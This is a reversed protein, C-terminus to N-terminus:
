KGKLDFQVDRTPGRVELKLESKLNYRAPILEGIHGGGDPGEVKGSAKPMVPSNIRVDYATRYLLTEFKGDKIPAAQTPTDGKSPAFRIVGDPLPQGNLNVQGQVLVQDSRRGYGGAFLVALGSLAALGVFFRTM